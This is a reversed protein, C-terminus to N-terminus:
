RSFQRVRYFAPLIDYITRNNKENDYDLNANKLDYTTSSFIKEAKELNEIVLEVEEIEEMYEDSINNKFGVVIENNIKEGITVSYTDLSEKFSITTGEMMETSFILSCVKKSALELNKVKM